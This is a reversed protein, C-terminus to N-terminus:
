AAEVKGVGDEPDEFARSDSSADNEGQKEPQGENLEAPFKAPEADALASSEERAKRAAQITELDKIAHSLARSTSTTYRMTKDLCHLLYPRTAGPEPQELVLVRGYRATEVVIRQLLIEEVISEPKYYERLGEALEEIEAVTEPTAGDLFKTVFIGHTISNKSSRAKGEDTKPGTSHQANRRNAEAKRSSTTKTPKKTEETSM